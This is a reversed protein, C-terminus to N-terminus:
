LRVIEVDDFWAASEAASHLILRLWRSDYPATAEITLKKWDSDGDLPPGSVRGVSLYDASCFELTM